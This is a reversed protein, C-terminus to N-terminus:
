HHGLVLRLRQIGQGIRARGRVVAAKLWDSRSTLGVQVEPLREHWSSPADVLLRESGKVYPSHWSIWLLVTSAM